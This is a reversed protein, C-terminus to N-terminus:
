VALLRRQRRRRLWVAVAIPGSFLAALPLVVGLLQVFFVAGGVLIRHANDVSEQAAGHIRSWFTLPAIALAQPRQSLSLTIKSLAAETELFKQRGQLRDIETRVMALERHVKIAQDVNSAQTLITALQKELALQNTVHAAMDMYEDTVDDSGIKEDSPGASLQRLERLAEDFRAVPVRLSLNARSESGALAQHESSAVYGGLREVLRGVRDEADAPSAVQLSVEASRVLKRSTAPLASDKAVRAGATTAGGPAVPAARSSPPPESKACAGLAVALLM